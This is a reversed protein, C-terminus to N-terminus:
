DSKAGRIMSGVVVLLFWLAIVHTWTISDPWGFLFSTAHLAGWATLMGLGVAFLLIFVVLGIIGSASM